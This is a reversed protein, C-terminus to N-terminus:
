PKAERLGAEALFEVLDVITQNVPARAGHRAAAAVVAGNLYALEPRRGARLDQLSGNLNAATRALSAFVAARDRDDLVVGDRAATVIAEDILAEAIRRLPPQELIAGNAADAVCCLGNVAINWLAKRWESRRLDPEVACPIGTAALRSRCDALFAADAPDGALEFRDVGAVHVHDLAVRRVGMWCQLRYLRAAPLARRAEDIVGVGNQCLVIAAAAGLHPALEALAAALEPVKTTVFVTVSPALGLGPLEDVTVVRLALREEAAGGGRTIRLPGARLTEHSRPRACLVSDERAQLLAQLFLGISGAGVVITSTM